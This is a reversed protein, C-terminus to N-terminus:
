QKIHNTALQGGLQVGNFVLSFAGFCCPLKWKVVLLTELNPISLQPFNISGQRHEPDDSPHKSERLCAQPIFAKIVNRGLNGDGGTGV